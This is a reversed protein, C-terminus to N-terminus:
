QELTLAYQLITSDINDRKVASPAAQAVAGALALATTLTFLM